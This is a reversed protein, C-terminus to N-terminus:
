GPGFASDVPSQTASRQALMRRLDGIVAEPQNLQRWTVRGVKWGLAQLRLDRRRDSEFAADTRHAAEGDLEIITREKRWLCDAEILRGEVDLLANLEPQPLDIRALLSAFRSELLSRTRGRPGAGLNELCARLSRVGRRGRYERVLRDLSDFDVGHRYQAERVAAELAEVRLISALDVITRLLSTVPIGRRITVEAPFHAVCRRRLANTSRTKNPTAIENAAGHRQGRIGWLGAASGHTLVAGDGGALVAAMWRGDQSIDPHGVAYVGPHLPHLLGRDVRRGIARRSLGLGLLQARGVVGHQRAALNAVVRDPHRTQM